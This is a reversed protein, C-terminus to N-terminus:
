MSGVDYLVHSLVFVLIVKKHNQLLVQHPHGETSTTVVKWISNAFTSKLNQRFKEKKRKKNYKSQTQRSCGSIKLFAQALVKL